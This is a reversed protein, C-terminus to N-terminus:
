PAVGAGDGLPRGTEASQYSPRLPASQNATPPPASQNASPSTAPNPASDGAYRALLVRHMRALANKELSDYSDRVFDARTSLEANREKSLREVELSYDSIQRQLFLISNDTNQIMAPVSELANSQNSSSAIGQLAARLRSAAELAKQTYNITSVCINLMRSNQSIRLDSAKMRQEYENAQKSPLSVTVIAPNPEGTNAAPLYKPGYKADIMDLIAAFYEEANPNALDSLRGFSRLNLPAMKSAEEVLQPSIALRKGPQASAVITAAVPALTAAFGRYANPDNTQAAMRFREVANYAGGSMSNNLNTSQVRESPDFEGITPDYALGSDRTTAARFAFRQAPSGKQVMHYYAADLDTEARVFLGDGMQAQQARRAADTGSVFSNQFSQTGDLLQNARPDLQQTGRSSSGNGDFRQKSAILTQYGGRADQLTSALRGVVPIQVAPLIRDEAITTSFMGAVQEVDAWNTGIFAKGTYVMQDIAAFIGSVESIVKGAKDVLGAGQKALDLVGWSNGGGGAGGGGTLGGLGGSGGGGGLWGSFDQGLGSGDRGAAGNALSEVQSIAQSPASLQPMQGLTIAKPMAEPSSVMQAISSVIQDTPAVETLVKGNQQLLTIQNLALIMKQKEVLVARMVDTNKMTQETSANIDNTDSLINGTDQKIQELVQIAGADTVPIQALVSPASHVTGLIALAVLNKSM